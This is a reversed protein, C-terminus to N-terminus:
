ISAIALRLWTISAPYGRTLKVGETFRTNNNIEVM